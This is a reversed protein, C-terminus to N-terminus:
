ARGDMISVAGAHHPAERLRELREELMARYDYAQNRHPENEPAEAQAQSDAAGAADMEDMIRDLLQAFSLPEGDLVADVAARDGSVLRRLTTIRFRLEQYAAIEGPESWEAEDVLKELSM